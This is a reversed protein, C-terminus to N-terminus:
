FFIDLLKSLIGPRQKDGIAGDGVYKIKSNAIQTSDVTNQITIDDPRVIGEVKIKQTEANITIEKVGAIKLNGNDLVDVVQVSLRASLNGSQSTNGSASSSDEQSMQFLKIFDLEGAGPGVNVENSQETDTSAQQNASSSERIIVTLVDGSKRAKHEAYPSSTSDYLSAALGQNAVILGSCIVVLLIMKISRQNM